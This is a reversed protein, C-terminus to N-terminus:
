WYSVQIDPTSFIEEREWSDCPGKSVVPSLGVKDLGLLNSTEPCITQEEGLLQSCSHSYCSSLSLRLGMNQMERVTGPPMKM